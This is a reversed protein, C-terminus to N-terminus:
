WFTPITTLSVLFFALFIQYFMMLLNKDNKRGFFKRILNLGILFVSVGELDANIVFNQFTVYNACISRYSTYM